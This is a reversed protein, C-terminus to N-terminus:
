TLILYIFEHSKQTIFLFLSRLDSIQFLFKSEKLQSTTKELLFKKRHKGGLFSLHIYVWITMGLFMDM